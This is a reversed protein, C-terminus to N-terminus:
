FAIAIKLSLVVFLKRNGLNKGVFDDVFSAHFANAFVVSLINCICMISVVAGIGVLNQVTVFVVLYDEHTTWVPTYCIWSPWRGGDRFIAFRCMDAITQGILSFNPKQVTRGGELEVGRGM